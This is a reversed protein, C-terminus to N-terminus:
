LHSEIYDAIQKFNQYEMHGDTSRCFSGDNKSALINRQRRTLGANFGKPLTETIRDNVAKWDVGQIHMLVGLCCMRGKEDRLTADGQKYRGSRLAKVWKRKLQADM